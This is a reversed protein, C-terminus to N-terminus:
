RLGSCGFGDHIGLGWVLLMGPDLDVEATEYEDDLTAATRVFDVELPARIRGLEPMREEVHRPLGPAVM